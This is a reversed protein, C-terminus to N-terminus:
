GTLEDLWESWGLPRYREWDDGLLEKLEDFTQARYQTNLYTAAQEPTVDGNEDILFVGSLSQLEEHATPGATVLALYVEGDDTTGAPWIDPAPVLSSNFGEVGDRELGKPRTVREGTAGTV